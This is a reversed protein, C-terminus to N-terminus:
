LSQHCQALGPSNRGRGRKLKKEDSARTETEQNTDKNTSLVRPCNGRGLGIGPAAGRISATRPDGHLLRYKEVLGRGLRQRRRDGADGSREKGPSPSPLEPEGRRGRLMEGTGLQATRSPTPQLEAALRPTHTLRRRVKCFYRVCARVCM